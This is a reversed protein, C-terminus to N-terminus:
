FSEIGQTKMRTSLWTCGNNIAQIVLHGSGDIYANNSTSLNNPWKPDNGPYSPPGCYVEVENNGWGNNNGQDFAWVTTDIATLALSSFEQCFAPVWTVSGQTDNPVNNGGTKCDSGQANARSGCALSLILIALLLSSRFFFRYKMLTSM